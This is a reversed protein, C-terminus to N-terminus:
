KEGRAVERLAAEANFMIYHSERWGNANLQTTFGSLMMDRCEIWWRVLERLEDREREVDTLLDALDAVEKILESKTM